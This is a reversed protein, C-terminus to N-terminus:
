STGAGPAPTFAWLQWTSPNTNQGFVLMRDRDPDWVAVPSTLRLPAPSSPLVQEWLSTLRDYRWLDNNNGDGFVFLQQREEDWAAAHGAREGPLVSQPQSQKWTKPPPPTDEIPADGKAITM